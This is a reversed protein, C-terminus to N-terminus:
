KKALTRVYGVLAAIEDASLKDKYPKMKTGPVGNEIATRIEADEHKKQWAEATLDEVKHKQGMKTQGTGDEAHCSACRKSWLTKVDVEAARAAPALALAAALAVLPLSQRM